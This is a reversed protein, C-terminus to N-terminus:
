EKVNMSDFSKLYNCPSMRESCFSDDDTKTLKLVFTSNKPFTTILTIEYDGQFLDITHGKFTAKFDGQFEIYKTVKLEGRKTPAKPTPPWYVM